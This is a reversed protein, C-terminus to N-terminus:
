RRAVLFTVARTVAETLQAESEAGVQEPTLRPLDDVLDRLAEWATLGLTHYTGILVDAIEGTDTDTHINMLAM